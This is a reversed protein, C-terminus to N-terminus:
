TRFFPLNTSCDDIVRQPWAHHTVRQTSGGITNDFELQTYYPQVTSDGYGNMSSEAGSLQLYESRSVGMGTLVSHLFRNLPVGPYIDSLPHNPDITRTQWVYANNQLGRNSRNRYDIYYGSRFEGGGRGATMTRMNQPNHTQYWAEHNWVLLVLDMLTRGGSVPVDALRAVLPLIFNETFYSYADDIIPTNDPNLWQHAVDQHFDGGSYGNPLGFGGTIIRVNGCLLSTVILNVYIDWHEAFDDRSGQHWANENNAPETPGYVTSSTGVANCSGALEINRLRNEVESLMQMHNEVIQSDEQSIRRGAGNAGRLRQYDEHIHNLASRRPGEGGAGGFNDGFLFDFIRGIGWNHIMPQITGDGARAWSASRGGGLNLLKMTRPDGAPYFSSSKAMIQDISEMPLSNLNQDIGTRFNRGDNGHLNGLYSQHHGPGSMIGIGDILNIDNRFPNFGSGFVPSIQAAPFSSLPAYRMRHDLGLMASGSYLQQETFSLGSLDGFWADDSVCGHETHFHIFCSENISQAAAEKPHLSTLLPLSLTFSGAGQLFHRRSIKCYKM